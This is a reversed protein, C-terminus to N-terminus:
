SRRYLASRGSEPSRRPRSCSPSTIKFPTTPALLRGVHLSAWPGSTALLSLLGWRTDPDDIRDSAPALAGFCALATLSFVVIYAFRLPAVAFAM